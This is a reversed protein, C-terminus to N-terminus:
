FSFQMGAGFGLIMKMREFQHMRWGEKAREVDAFPVGTQRLVLKTDSEAESLTITVESYHGEVWEKFRWAMVIREHPVLEKFIGTVQGGFLSFAGGVKADIKAESQTYARVRQEDVLAMFLDAARCKFTDHVEVTGTRTSAPTAAAAPAGPLSANLAKPALQAPAPLAAAAPRDTPLILDKAYETRLNKLWVALQARVAAAGKTRMLEKVQRRAPTEADTLKVIVEVESIDNEESLNPIEMTGAVTTEDKAAGKWSLKLNFEYFFILKAKRNNATAEGEISTIETTRCYGVSDDEVGLNVLLEKFQRKSWETANKETWHWNNVNTADPREEVIWRPDGEGWKAM